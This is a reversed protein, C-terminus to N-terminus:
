RRAVTTGIRIPASRPFTVSFGGSNKKKKRFTRRRKGSLFPPKAFQTAGYFSSASFTHSLELSGSVKQIKRVGPNVNESRHVLNEFPRFDKHSEVASMGLFSSPSSFTIYSVGKETKSFNSTRLLNLQHYSFIASTIQSVRPSYSCCTQTRGPLCVDGSGGWM